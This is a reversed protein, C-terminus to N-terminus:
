TGLRWRKLIQGTTSFALPPLDDFRFFGVADADDNAEATGGIIEGRYIIFISAGRAHERAFMVDILEGVRIQLGTEELCERAAAVRPDEGADVFGAPLTWKGRGPVNTRRVLLIKEDEELLVGVAVKPDDFHIYGCDPCVPRLRGLTDREELRQGCTICFNVPKLDRTM